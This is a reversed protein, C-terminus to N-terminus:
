VGERAYESGNLGGFYQLQQLEQRDLRRVDFFEFLFDLFRYLLSSNVYEALHSLM